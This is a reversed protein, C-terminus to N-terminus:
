IMGGALRGAPVVNNIHRYVVAGAWAGGTELLVDSISPYRDPLFAQGIEIAIALAAALVVVLAEPRRRNV